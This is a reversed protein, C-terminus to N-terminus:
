ETTSLRRMLRRTQRKFGGRARFPGTTACLARGTTLIRRRFRLAPVSGELKRFATISDVVGIIAYRGDPAVEDDVVRRVGQFKFTDHFAIVGGDVVHPAWRAFDLHVQEYRHKGDIWLLRVPERWELAVEESRAVLPVVQDTVGAAELNARFAPSNGGKFPDIATVRERGHLQAARALVVTSKGAFSGIEVIAGDGPGFAALDYLYAAEHDSLFGEIRPLTQHLWAREEASARTM